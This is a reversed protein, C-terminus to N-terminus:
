PIIIHILHKVMGWQQFHRHFDVAVVAALIYKVALLLNLITPWASIAGCISLKKLPSSYMMVRLILQYGINQLKM